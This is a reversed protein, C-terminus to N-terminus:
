ARRPAKVASGGYARAIKLSSDVADSGSGGSFMVHDLGAPMREVIRNALEFSLMHGFQFAPAYDLTGIQRAVAEVIEKRAHGLGTCWLGSLGDFVKRGQLDTYYAGAAQTFLRPAAKFQRNATFPMWHAELWAADAPSAAERRTGPPNAM